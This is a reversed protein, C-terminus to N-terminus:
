VNPNSYHCMNIETTLIATNHM